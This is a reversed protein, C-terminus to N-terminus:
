DLQNKDRPSLEIPANLVKKFIERKEDEAINQPFNFRIAPYIGIQGAPIKSFQLIYEPDLGSQLARVMHDNEHSITETFDNRSFGCLELATMFSSIDNFILIGTEPNVKKLEEEMKEASIRGSSFQAIIADQRDKIRELEDETIASKKADAVLLKIQEKTLIPKSGLDEFKNM